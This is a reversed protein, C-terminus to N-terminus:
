DGARRRRAERPAPPIMRRDLLAAYTFDIVNELIEDTPEIAPGLAFLKEEKRELIETATM